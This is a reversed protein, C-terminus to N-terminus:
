KFYKLIQFLISQSVIFSMFGFKVMMNLPFKTETEIIKKLQLQIGENKNQTKINAHKFKENAKKIRKSIDNYDKLDKFYNKKLCIQLFKKFNEDKEHEIINEILSNDM